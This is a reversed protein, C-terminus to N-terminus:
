RASTRRGVTRAPVAWRALEYCYGCWNAAVAVGVLPLAVWYRGRLQGGWQRVMHTTGRLRGPVGLLVFRAIPHRRGDGAPRTAALTLLAGARGRAFHHRVLVTPTRCPSRHIFAADSARYAGYGLSFLENNVWTDEGARVGEPFGGIWLLSDRLYSCQVPASDLEESPRGPLAPCHDVFYSAWGSWTGTGNEVSGTVMAYGREHARLRAALSGPLLEV